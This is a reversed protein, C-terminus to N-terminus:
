SLTKTPTMWGPSKGLFSEPVPLSFPPNMPISAEQALYSVGLQARKYVPLSTLEDVKGDDHELFIRGENPKILGVIM